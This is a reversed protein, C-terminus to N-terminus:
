EHYEEDRKIIFKTQYRDWKITYQAIEDLYARLQNNGNNLIDTRAQQWKTEWELEELTLDDSEKGFGWLEGFLDEFHALAGIMTTQFKKSINAILRRKSNESYRKANLKKVADHQKTFQSHQTYQM